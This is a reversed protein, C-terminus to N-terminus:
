PVGTLSAAKWILLNGSNHLFAQTYGPLSSAVKLTTSHARYM